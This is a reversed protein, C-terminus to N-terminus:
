SELAAGSLGQSSTKAVGLHDLYLLELTHKTMTVRLRASRKWLALISFRGAILAVLGVSLILWDHPSPRASSYRMCLLLVLAAILAVLAIAIGIAMNQCFRSLISHRNVYERYLDPLHMQVVARGLERVIEARKKHQREEDENMEKKSPVLLNRADNKPIRLQAAIADAVGSIFWENNNLADSVLNTEPSRFKWSHIATLVHGMVYGSFLLFVLSHWPHAIVFHAARLDFGLAFNAIDLAFAGGAIVVSGPATYELLDRLVVHDYFEALNVALGGVERRTM